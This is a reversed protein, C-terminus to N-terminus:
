APTEELIHVFENTFRALSFESRVRRWAAAGMRDILSRDRAFNSIARALQDPRGAEVVFGTEGNVVIEPLGGKSSCIVPRGFAGAEIASTALPEDSRSPVVCIDLRRFIEAQDNVYGCWDVVDLLGLDSIKRRLAEKYGQPGSGFIRLDVLIGDHRLMAIADLLDDHGKWPAIQGVIGLQLREVDITTPLRATDPVGNHIVEIRSEPVGLVLLSRKVAESVCVIRRVRAAIARFVHGYRRVNPPIEHVWHIDRRPNLFPLLLLCHHWNTHIVTRSDSAAVIRPYRYILSPWHCFQVLTDRMHEFRPTASIFGIPISKFDFHDRELRSQFEGDHWRSTIFEPQWGAERLGRALRIAVVEKGFVCGAGCVIQVARSTMLIGHTLRDSGVRAKPM